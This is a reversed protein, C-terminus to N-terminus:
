TASKEKRLNEVRALLSELTSMAGAHKNQTMALYLECVRSWDAHIEAAHGDHASGLLRHAASLDLLANYYERKAEFDKSRMWLAEALQHSDSSM